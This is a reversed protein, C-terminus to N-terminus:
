HGDSSFVAALNRRGDVVRHIRVAPRPSVAYFIIHPNVALSRLGAVPFEPRLRGMQPHRSLEEIRLEIRGSIKDALEESIAAYKLWLESLDRRSARAFEIPLSNKM